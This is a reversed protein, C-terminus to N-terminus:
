ATYAGVGLFAVYGLDLLGALGVVLNLGLAVTAFGAGSGPRRRVPTRGFTVYPEPEWEPSATVRERVGADMGRKLGEGYTTSGTGEASM